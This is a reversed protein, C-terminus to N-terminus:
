AIIKNGLILTDLGDNITVNLIFYARNKGSWSLPMDENDLSLVRLDHHNANWVNDEPTYIPDGGNWNREECRTWQWDGVSLDDSIDDNGCFCYPTVVTDVEGFRFDTGNSSVFKLTLDGNGEIMMWSSSNWKPEEYVLRGGSPKPQHELCRWKAGNHWVDSTMWYLKADDYEEHKYEKGDIWMGEDVYQVIPNGNKDKKRVYLSDGQKAIAEELSNPELKDATISHKKIVLAMKKRPADTLKTNGIYKQKITAM